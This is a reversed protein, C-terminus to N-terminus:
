SCRRRAPSTASRATCTLSQATLRVVEDHEGLSYAVMAPQVAHGGREASAHRPDSAAVPPLAAREAYHRPADRVLRAGAPM